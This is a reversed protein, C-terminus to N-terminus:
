DILREAVASDPWREVPRATYGAHALRSQFLAIQSAAFLLRVVLRLVIYVQGVVLAAVAMSWGRTAGPAALYYIAVVALFVLANLLYLAFAPGPQRRIFRLSASIAGIASRRDEVVMRIKAYDLILNVLLLAAGFVLSLGAYIAFARREETVERTWAPYLDDFLWPRFSGFLLAYLVAAILGLRLFRFFFIGCAGFFGHSTTARDRALRDLVGGLLFLSLLLHGAVVLMLPLPLFRADAVGSLNRVVAAFGIVSTGFTQGLGGAQALFENWWDFDVGTAVNEAVLSEGLHDAILERMILAPPLALALTACWVGALLLPAGRVRRWGDFLAATASM